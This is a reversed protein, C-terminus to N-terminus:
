RDQMVTFKINPGNLPYFLVNWSLVKAEVTACQCKEGKGPTEYVVRNILFTIM